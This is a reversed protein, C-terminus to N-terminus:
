KCNYEVILLFSPPHQLIDPILLLIKSCGGIKYCFLKYRIVFHWALGSEHILLNGCPIKNHGVHELLSCHFTVKYLPTSYNTLVTM